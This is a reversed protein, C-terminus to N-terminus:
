KTVDPVELEFVDGIWHSLGPPKIEDFYDCHEHAVFVRDPTDDWAWFRCKVKQLVPKWFTPAYIYKQRGTPRYAIHFAEGVRITFEYESVAVVVGKVGDGGRRVVEDGVKM